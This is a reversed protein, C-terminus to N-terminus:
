QGAKRFGKMVPSRPLDKEGHPKYSYLITMGLYRDRNMWIQKRLADTLGVGTGISFEKDGDKVLLSGLTDKGVMYAADSSRNMLGVPNYKDPNTNEFQEVFGTIVAESQLGRCLKVLWQERLTSRGQKYPSDPTRFCIGEGAQEEVMIFFAFLQEANHCMVPPSFKVLQQDTTQMFAAIMNCRQAYTLNPNFWDLLHFEIMDTDPHERSMVISEIENYALRKNWLEMDMGDRLHIIARQRLKLNPIKKFTRSRLADVRIGRIGDKKLTVAVPFRLKKMQMFINHNTHEMGAPMLPCALMPRKLTTM